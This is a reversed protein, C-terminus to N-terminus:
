TIDIVTDAFEIVEKRHAIVIRTIKLNKISENIRLETKLDLNSTAEDLFIVKPKRYLARALLIRQKQGASVRDVSGGIITMYGQELKMVDQHIAAMMACQVAFNEDVKSAEDGSWVINDLVTGLILCDEQMVAALNNRYNRLLSIDVDDCYVQGDTPPLLGMMIKMLTTKGKGSPGVIAVLSGAPISFSVNNLIYGGAGEYSYSVNNARIAGDIQDLNRLNKTNNFDLETKCCLVDSIRHLHASSLKLEVFGKLFTGIRQSFQVKFSLYAYLMGITIVNEMLLHTLSYLLLIVEIGVIAGIIVETKIDLLGKQIDTNAADIYKSTWLSHRSAENQYVKMSHIIRINEVFVSYSQAHLELGEATLKKKKSYYFQYTLAQLALGLLIISTVLPSYVLMIVILMVCAAGDIILLPVSNSLQLNLQEVSGLRSSIYGISKDAFYTIPLSLLHKAFNSLTYVNIRTFFNLIFYGRILRILIDTIVLFSIGALILHLVNMSGTPIVRDIVAQFSIPIAILLVQIALSLFLIVSLNHLLGPYHKYFSKITLQKSYDENSFIAHIEISVNNFSCDFEKIPVREQAESDNSVIELSDGEVGCALCYDGNKKQLIAPFSLSLLDKEVITVQRASLRLENAAQLISAYSSLKKRQIFKLSSEDIDIGCMQAAFKLCFFASETNSEGSYNLGRFGKRKYFWLKRYLDGSKEM